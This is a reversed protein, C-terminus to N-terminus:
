LVHPRGGISCYCIVTLSFIPSFGAIASLDGGGLLRADCEFGRWRLAAADIEERAHKCGIFLMWARLVYVPGRAGLLRRHLGQDKVDVSRLGCAGIVTHLMDDPMEAPWQVKAGWM